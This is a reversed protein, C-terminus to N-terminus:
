AEGHRRPAPHLLHAGRVDQEDGAHDLHQQGRALEVCGHAGHDVAGCRDMGVREALQHLRQRFGTDHLDETLRLDTRDSRERVLVVEGRQCAVRPEQRGHASRDGTQLQPQLACALVPHTLYGDFGLVSEV